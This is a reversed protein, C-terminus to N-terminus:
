NPLTQAIFTFLPRQNQPSNDSTAPSCVLETIAQAIGSVFQVKSGFDEQNIIDDELPPPPLDDNDFLESAQEDNKDDDSLEPPATPQPAPPAQNIGGPPASVDNISVHSWTPRPV